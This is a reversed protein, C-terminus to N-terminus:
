GNRRSSDKLLQWAAEKLDTDDIIKCLVESSVDERKLLEAAVKKGLFPFSLVEDLEETSPSRQLWMEWAAEHHKFSLRMIALLEDDGPSQRLLQEAPLDALHNEMLFLLEENTPKYQLWLAFAEQQQSTRTMCAFLEEKTLAYKNLVQWAADSFVYEAKYIISMLEERTPTQKLFLEWAKERHGGSYLILDVLELKTLPQELDIGKSKHLRTNGSPM